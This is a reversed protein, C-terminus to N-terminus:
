NRQALIADVYRLSINFTGTISLPAPSMIPHSHTAGSGAPSSTNAPGRGVVAWGTRSFSSPVQGASSSPSYATLHQHVPSAAATSGFTLSGLVVEGAAAQSSFVTSFNTTGGTSTTGSVIRIAYDNYTTLKTWGVPATDNIFKAISSSEISITM